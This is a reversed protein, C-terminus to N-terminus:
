REHTSARKVTENDSNNWKAAVAFYAIISIVNQLFCEIHLHFTIKKYVNGVIQTPFHGIPIFSSPLVFVYVQISQDFLIFKTPKTVQIMSTNPSYDILPPSAAAIFDEDSEDQDSTIVHVQGSSVNM